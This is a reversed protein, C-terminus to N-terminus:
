ATRAALFDHPGVQAVAFGMGALYDWIRRDGDNSEFVLADIRGITGSAGLLADYEGGELDMKVLAIRGEAPVIADLRVTEVAVVRCRTADAGIAISAQGLRSPDTSAEVREGGRSSLAKAIIRVQGAGNADVNERLVAATDPMMEVAIVQGSPGVLRAAVLSYYGINAGADVFLDGPSLRQQLVRLIHPERWGMVHFLDDTGARVRLTGAQPVSVRLDSGVMPARYEDLDRLASLPAALASRYLLARDRPTAGGLTMVIRAWDAQRRGYHEAMRVAKRFAPPTHAALRQRLTGGAM